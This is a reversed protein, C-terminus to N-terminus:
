QEALECNPEEISTNVFRCNHGLKGTSLAILIQLIEWKEGYFVAFQKIVLNKTEIGLMSSYLEQDSNLLGEGKLLLQYFSNDFFILRPCLEMASINNDGSGGAAPVDIEFSNLYTESMPSRDSTTEFDGYIRSVFIRVVHWALINNRGGSLAVMDTASLGQYLFKNIITLCVRMQQQFIQHQSSSVQSNKSDKGEWPFMGTHDVLLPAHRLMLPGLNFTPDSAHLSGSLISIFVLMLLHNVRSLKSEQFPFRWQQKKQRGQIIPSFLPLSPNSETLDIFPFFTSGQVKSKAHGNSYKAYLGRYDLSSAVLAPRTPPYEWVLIVLYISPICRFFNGASTQIWEVKLVIKM